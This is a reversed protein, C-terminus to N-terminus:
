CSSMPGVYCSLRLTDLVTHKKPEEQIRYFPAIWINPTNRMGFGTMGSTQENSGIPRIVAFGLAIRHSDVIQNM